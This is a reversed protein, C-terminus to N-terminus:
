KNSQHETCWGRVNCFPCTLMYENNSHETIIVKTWKIRFEMSCHKCEFKHSAINKATLIVTAMAIICLLVTLLIYM